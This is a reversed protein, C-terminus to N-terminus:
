TLAKKFKMVSCICYMKCRNYIVSSETQKNNFYYKGIEFKCISM